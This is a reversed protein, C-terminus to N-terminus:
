QASDTRGSVWSSCSDLPIFSHIYLATCARLLPIFFHLPPPNSIVATTTSRLALFQVRPMEKLSRAPFGTLHCATVEAKFESIVCIQTWVRARVYGEESLGPKRM